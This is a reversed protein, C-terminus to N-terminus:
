AFGRQSRSEYREESAPSHHKPTPEPPNPQPADTPGKVRPTPRPRVRVHGRAHERIVTRIPALHCLIKTNNVLQICNDSLRRPCTRTDANM